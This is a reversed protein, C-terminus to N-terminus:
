LDEEELMITYVLSDNGSFGKKEYLGRAPHNHSLVHLEVRSLGARKAEEIALALLDAGVGQGRYDQHVIFDELSGYYSGSWSSYRNSHLTCTAVVSSAVGVLISFSGEELMHHFSGLLLDRNIGGGYHSLREGYFEMLDCWLDVVEKADDPKALRYEM